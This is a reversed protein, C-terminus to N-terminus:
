PDEMRKTSDRILSKRSYMLLKVISISTLWLESFSVNGEKEVRHMNWSLTSCLGRAVNLLAALFKPLFQLFQLQIVSMIRQQKYLTLSLMRLCNTKTEKKQPTTMTPALQMSLRKWVTNRLNIPTQSQSKEQKSMVMPMSTILLIKKSNRVRRQELRVLLVEEMVLNPIQQTPLRM